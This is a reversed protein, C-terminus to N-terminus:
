RDLLEYKEILDRNLRLANRFAHFDQATTQESIGPQNTWNGILTRWYQEESVQHHAAAQGQSDVSYETTPNNISGIVKDAISEEWECLSIDRKLSYILATPLSKDLSDGTPHEPHIYNISDLCQGRFIVEDECGNPVVINPKSNSQYPNETNFDIFPRYTRQSVRGRQQHLDPCWSPLGEMTNQGFAQSLWLWWKREKPSAQTLIFRAFQVYLTAPSPNQRINPIMFEHMQEGVFGLVGYVRDRPDSCVHGKAMHLTIHLLRNAVDKVTTGIGYSKHYKRLALTMKALFAGDSRSGLVFQLNIM